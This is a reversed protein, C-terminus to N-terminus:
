QLSRAILQAEITLRKHELDLRKQRFTDMDQRYQQEHTTWEQLLRAKEDPNQKSALIQAKAVHLHTRQLVWQQQQLDLGQLDMARLEQLVTDQTDPSQKLAELRKTARDINVDLHILGKNLMGLGPDVFETPQVQVAPTGACGVTIVLLLSAGTARWRRGMGNM